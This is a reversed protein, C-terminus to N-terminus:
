QATPSAPEALDDSTASPIGFAKLIEPQAKEAAAADLVILTGRNDPSGAWHDLTVTIFTGRPTVVPHKLAAQVDKLRSIPLGNVQTVIAQGLHHYGENVAHPLV